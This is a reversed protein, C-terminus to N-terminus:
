LRTMQRMIPLLAPTSLRMAGFSEIKTCSRLLTHVEEESLDSHLGLFIDRVGTEFFSAPKTRLLRRVIDDMSQSSPHRKSSSPELVRYLLPEIWIFIRHAVLLLTPITRFHLIAATEFVERELDPPFIPVVM